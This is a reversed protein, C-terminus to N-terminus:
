QVRKMPFAQKREQGHEKGSIEAVLSDANIKTYSITQPFDHQPNEFIMQTDSMTKMVFRVPLGKNQDKVTPVYAVEQGLQELRLSESSVTDKGIIFLSKGAYVTDNQKTWSETAIGEPTVNHWEGILWYAKELLM